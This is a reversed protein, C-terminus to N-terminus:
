THARPGLSNQAHRATPLVFPAPSLPLRGVLTSGELLLQLESVTLRLPASTAAEHWLCAFRGRELRTAYICLGTGDWLLVKARKRTRNVFVFFDGALPDRGLDNMVLASLGDFGKRMDVPAGYAYVAVQRTSGIV